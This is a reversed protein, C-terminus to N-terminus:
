KQSAFIALLVAGTMILTGTVRLIWGRGSSKKESNTFYQGLFWVIILAWLGRSSYVVNVGTPNNFFGISIGMLMAQITTWIAGLCISKTAKKGMKSLPAKFFPILGFSYLAAVLFMVANFGFVGFDKAWRAVLTDCIGFFSASIITYIVGKSIIEGPKLSSWGLIFIAIATMFAAAWMGAPLGKDHLYLSSTLAVFITKTGLIPTVLSVDSVRIGLFTFLHGFFFLTGVLIPQWVDGWPRDFGDIFALPIFGFALFWNNIFFTRMLGAGNKFGQKYYLAGVAYFVAAFFPLWLYTPQNM